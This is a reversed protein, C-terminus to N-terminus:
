DDAPEDHSNSCGPKTAIEAAIKMEKARTEFEAIKELYELYTERTDTCDFQPYMGPIDYTDKVAREHDFFYFYLWLRFDRLAPMEQIFSILEVATVECDTRGPGGASWMHLHKLRKLGKLKMFEESTVPWSDVTIDLYELAHMASLKDWARWETIWLHGVKLSKLTSSIHDIILHENGREFKITHLYTMRCVFYHFQEQSIQLDEGLSISELLPCGETMIDFWSGNDPRADNVMVHKLTPQFIAQLQTQCKNRLSLYDFEVSRLNPLNPIARSKRLRVYGKSQNDNDTDLTYRLHRIFGAYFDVRDPEPGKFGKKPMRKFRLADAAPRHWRHRVAEHFWAKNVRVLDRLTRADAQAIINMWIEPLNGAYELLPSPSLTCSKVGLHPKGCTECIKEDKNQEAQLHLDGLSQGLSSTETM